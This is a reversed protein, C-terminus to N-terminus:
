FRFCVFSALGFAQLQAGLDHRARTKIAVTGFPQGLEVGV